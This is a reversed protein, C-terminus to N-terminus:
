LQLLHPIQSIAQNREIQPKWELNSNWLLPDLKLYKAGQGKCSKVVGEPTSIWSHPRARFWVLSVLWESLLVCLIKKYTEISRKRFHLNCWPSVAISNLLSPLREQPILLHSVPSDSGQFNAVVPEVLMFVHNLWASLSKGIFNTQLEPLASYSGWRGGQM